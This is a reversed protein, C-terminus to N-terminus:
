NYPNYVPSSTNTFDFKKLEICGELNGPTSMYGVHVGRLGFDAFNFYYNELQFSYETGAAAPLKPQGNRASYRYRRETQGYYAGVLAAFRDHQTPHGSIKQGPPLTWLWRNNTRHYGITGIVCYLDWGATNYKPDVRVVFNAIFGHGNKDRFANGEWMMTGEPIMVGRNLYNGLANNPDEKIGQQTNVGYLYIPKSLPGGHIKVGFGSELNYPNGKVVGGFRANIMQQKFDQQQNVGINFSKSSNGNLGKFNMHWDWTAQSAFPDQASKLKIKAGTGVINAATNQVHSLEYSVKPYQVVINTKDSMEKIKKGDAYVHIGLSANFTRTVNRDSIDAINVFPWDFIVNQTQQDAFIVAPSDQNGRVGRPILHVKIRSKDIGSTVNFTVKCSKKIDNKERDTNDCTVNVATINEPKIATNIVEITTQASLTSGLNTATIDVKITHIGATDFTRTYTAGKEGSQVTGDLTWTYSAGTLNINNLLNSVVPTFTASKNQSVSSASRNLTLTPKPTKFEKQPARVATNSGQPIVVLNVRYTGDYKLLQQEFSQSTFNYSEGNDGRTINWQYTLPVQKRVGDIIAYGVAGTTCTYIMGNKQSCSIEANEVASSNTVQFPEASIKTDAPFYKASTVDVNATYTGDYPLEINGTNIGSARKSFGNPGSITWSYAADPIKQSLTANFVVATNSSASGKSIAVTPYEIDIKTHQEATEEKGNLKATVSVPYSPATASPFKDFKYTATNNDYGKAVQNNFKWEYSLTGTGNNVVQGDVNCTYELLNGTPRCNVAGLAIQKSLSVTTTSTLGGEVQDSTGSVTIAKKGSSNFTYVAPDSGATEVKNGAAETTETTAAANEDSFTWTYKTNDLADQVGTIYPTCSVTLGSTSCEIYFNPAPTTVKIDREEKKNSAAPHKVTSKITYTKGYKAFKHSVTNIGDNITSGDGFDWDISLPVKDTSYAPNYFHYTLMDNVDAEQKIGAYEITGSTYVMVKATTYGVPEGQSDTVSVKVNYSGEVDYKVSPSSINAQDNYRENVSKDGFDWVFKYTEDLNQEFLTANFQVAFGGLYKFSVALAPNDGEFGATGGGAQTDGNNSDEACGALLLGFLMTTLLLLRRM